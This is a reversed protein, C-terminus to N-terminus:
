SELPVFSTNVSRNAGWFALIPQAREAAQGQARPYMATDVHACSLTPFSVDWVTLLMETRCSPAFPLRCSGNIYVLFLLNLIMKAEITVASLLM